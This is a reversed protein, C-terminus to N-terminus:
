ALKWTSVMLGHDFPRCFATVLFCHGSPLVKDGQLTLDLPFVIFKVM